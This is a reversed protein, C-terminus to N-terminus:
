HTARLARLMKQFHDLRWGDQDEGWGIKGDYEWRMLANSGAGSECMHSVAFGEAEMRRGTLDTMDVEMHASWGTNPDRFNRMRSRTKDLRQFEGDRLLWGVNM